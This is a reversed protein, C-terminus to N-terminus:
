AKADNSKERERVAYHWGQALRALKPVRPMPKWFLPICAVDYSRGYPGNAAPWDSYGQRFSAGWWDQNGHEPPDYDRDGYLTQWRMSMINFYDGGDMGLIVSGDRPATKIPRWGLLRLWLCGLFFKIM